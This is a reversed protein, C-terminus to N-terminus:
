ELLLFLKSPPNEFYFKLYQCIWVKHFNKVNLSEPYLFYTWGDFLNEEFEIRADCGLFWEPSSALTFSTGLGKIKAGERLFVDVGLVVPSLNMQTTPPPALNYAWGQHMVFMNGGKSLIQVRLKGDTQPEDKEFISM